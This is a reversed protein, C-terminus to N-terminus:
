RIHSPVQQPAVSSYWSFSKLSTNTAESLNDKHLQNGTTSPHAYIHIEIVTYKYMLVCCNFIPQIHKDKLATPSSTFRILFCGYCICQLEKVPSSHAYVNWPSLHSHLYNSYQKITASTAKLCMTRLLILLFSLQFFYANSFALLFRLKFISM